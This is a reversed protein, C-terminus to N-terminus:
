SVCQSYVKTMHQREEEFCLRGHIGLSRSQISYALHEETGPVLLWARWDELADPLHECDRRFGRMIVLDLHFTRRLYINGSRTGLTGSSLRRNGIERRPWTGAFGIQQFSAPLAVWAHRGPLVGPRLADRLHRVLALREAM